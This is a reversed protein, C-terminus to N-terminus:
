HRVLAAALDEILDDADELGVSLRVLGDVIGVRERVARPMSAHTMTAPHNILSEVGGLSEACAFLKTASLFRRAADLGGALVCTVMGGFGGMQRRALEHQPHSPLGPYIVHEFATQRAAWEAVRLANECHRRM